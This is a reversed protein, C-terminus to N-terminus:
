RGAETFPDPDPFARDDVTITQPQLQQAARLQAQREESWGVSTLYASPQNLREWAEEATRGWDGYTAPTGAKIVGADCPEVGPFEWYIEARELRPILHLMLILFEAPSLWSQDEEDGYEMAARHLAKFYLDGGVTLSAMNHRFRLYFEQGHLTGRAQFPCVGGAYYIALDMDAFTTMLEDAATQMRPNM